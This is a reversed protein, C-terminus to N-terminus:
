EEGFRDRKTSFGEMEDDFEASRKSGARQQRLLHAELIKVQERWFFALGDNPQKSLLTRWHQLQILHRSSRERSNEACCHADMSEDAAPGPTFFSPMNPARELDADFTTGSPPPSPPRPLDHMRPMSSGHSPSAARWQDADQHAEPERDGMQWEHANGSLSRPQSALAGQSLLRTHVPLYEAESFGPPPHPMGGSAPGGSAFGEDQGLCRIGARRTAAFLSHQFHRAHHLVPPSPPLTEAVGMPCAPAFEMSDEDDMVMDAM